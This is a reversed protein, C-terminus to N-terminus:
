CKQPSQTQNAEKPHASCQHLSTFLYRGPLPERAAPHSLCGYTTILPGESGITARSVFGQDSKYNVIVLGGGGPKQLDQNQSVKLRTSDVSASTNIRLRNRQINDSAHNEPLLRNFQTRAALHIATRPEHQVLFAHPM